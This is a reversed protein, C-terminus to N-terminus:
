LANPQGSCGVANGACANCSCSAISTGAPHPRRPLSTNGSGKTGSPLVQWVSQETGGFDKIENSLARSAKGPQGPCYYENPNNFTCTPSQTQTSAEDYRQWAEDARMLGLIWIWQTMGRTAYEQSSKSPTRRKLTYSTSFLVTVVQGISVAHGSSCSETSYLLQHTDRTIRLTHDRGFRQLLDSNRSNYGLACGDAWGGAGSDCGRV